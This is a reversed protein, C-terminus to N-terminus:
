PRRDKDSQAAGREFVLFYSQLHRGYKLSDTIGWFSVKRDAMKAFVGSLNQLPGYVSDNAIIVRDYRSLDGVAALGTRWSAFDHGINQKVIYKSCFPLIKRIDAADLKAATSVLVTECGLADLAQLYHVVYDDIMGDRDFHALICLMRRAGPDQSGSGSEIIRGPEPRVMRRILDLLVLLKLILWKVVEAIPARM